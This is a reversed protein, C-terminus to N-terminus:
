KRGVKGDDNVSIEAHNRSVVKSRFALSLSLPDGGGGMLKKDDEAVGLSAGEDHKDTFRGVRLRAGPKLQRTTISFNPSRSNELHPLLRLRHRITDKDDVESESQNSSSTTAPGPTRRKSLQRRIGARAGSATASGSASGGASATSSHGHSSSRRFSNLINTMLTKHNSQNTDQESQATQATTTSQSSSNQAGAPPPRTVDRSRPNSGFNIEAALAPDTVTAANVGYTFWTM